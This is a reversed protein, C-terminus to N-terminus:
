LQLFETVEEAVEDMDRDFSPHALLDLDPIVGVPSVSSRDPVVNISYKTQLGTGTRTILFDFGKKPSLSDPYIKTNEIVEMIGRWVGYPAPLIQVRSGEEGRVVVAMLFKDGARIRKQLDDDTTQTQLACIPCGSGTCPINRLTAHVGFHRSQKAFLRKRGHKVSNYLLPRVQTQGVTLTMFQGSRAQRADDVIGEYDIDNTMPQKGRKRSSAKKKTPTKKRPAM